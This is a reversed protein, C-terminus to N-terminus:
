IGSCICVFLDMAIMHISLKVNGIILSFPACPQLSRAQTYPAHFRAHTLADM